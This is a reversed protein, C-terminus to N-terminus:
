KLAERLTALNKKMIQIYADREFPGSVATDLTYLRAGTERAISEATASPYQPEVFLTKVGSKRVLTIIGAIEKASPDSSPEVRIVAAVKLGYDRALYDFARHFSIFEPHKINKLGTSMANKLLLLDACYAEGNKRYLEKHSPDLEGLAASITRVQTVANSPSLWIHANQHTGDKLLEIGRSADIIKLSKMKTTLSEMFPEMGAGNAIFVNGKSLKKMDETTLEYDHLCGVSSPVLNVVKIGPVDKTINLTHIYIPYFSTVITFSKKEAAQLSAALLLIFCLCIMLFIRIM